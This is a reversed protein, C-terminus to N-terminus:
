SAIQILTLLRAEQNGSIAKTSLSNGGLEEILGAGATSNTHQMRNNAKNEHPQNEKPHQLDEGSRIVGLDAEGEVDGEQAVEQRIQDIDIQRAIKDTAQENTPRGVKRKLGQKNSPGDKIFRLVDGYHFGFNSELIRVKEQLAAEGERLNREQARGHPDKRYNEVSGYHGIAKDRVGEIYNLKKKLLKLQERHDSFVQKETKQIEGDVNFKSMKMFTTM